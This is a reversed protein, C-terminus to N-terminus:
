NDTTNDEISCIVNKLYKSGSSPMYETASYKLIYSHGAIFKYSKIFKSGYNNWVGYIDKSESTSVPLSYSNSTKYAKLNTSFTSYGIKVSTLIATCENKVTIKAHTNDSIASSDSSDVPNSCSVCYMCVFLLLYRILITSQKKM